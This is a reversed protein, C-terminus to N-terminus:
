RRGRVRIWEYLDQENLDSPYQGRNMREPHAKKFFELFDRGDKETYNAFPDVPKQEVSKASIKISSPDLLTRVISPEAPNKRLRDHLRKVDQAKWESFDDKTLASQIGEDDFPEGTRLRQLKSSHKEVIEDGWRARSNEMDVALGGQLATQLERLQQPTLQGFPNSDDGSPSQPGEPPYTLNRRDWEAEPLLEGTKEDRYRVVEETVIEPDEFSETPEERHYGAPLTDQFGENGANVEGPPLDEAMSKLGAKIDAASLRSMEDTM